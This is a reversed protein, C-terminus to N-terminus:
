GALRAALGGMLDSHYMWTQIIDPRDKKLWRTLKFLMRPDPTGRKMGLARVSIGLDEIKKGIPGIDTLSVVQIKFKDRDMSSVLKYLM